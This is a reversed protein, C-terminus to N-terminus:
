GGAAAEAPYLYEYDRVHAFGMRAYVPFGRRSAQLSAVGCGFAQGGAVAAGTLAEGWGRGRRDERTAVWYIGAVSGTAVLMSTAVVAGDEIGAYLRVHPLALLHDNLFIGAAGVPYGFGAFAAERFAVLEEASRVERIALAEPPRRLRAPLALTMGPVPEGRREWGSSELARTAEPADSSVVLRFPLAAESFFARVAAAAADCDGFPPRLIGWNLDEVPLGSSVIAVGNRERVEGRKTYAVLLRNAEFYNHDLAASEM